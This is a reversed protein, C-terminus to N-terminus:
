LVRNQSCTFYIIQYKKSLISMLRVAGEMNKDDMNVFPDDMILMPKEGKYMVEVLAARACIDTLDKLGASLTHKDRYMGHDKYSINMDADIQMDTHAANIQSYYSMFAEMVPETYRATFKEKAKGLLDYTRSILEYKM